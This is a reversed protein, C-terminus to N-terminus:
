RKQAKRTPPQGTERVVVEGVAYRALAPRPAIGQPTRVALGLATLKALAQEVLEPEAGPQRATKSWFGGHEAALERIRLQLDATAVPGGAAALHEALLLTIHGHTGQEPMRVDTLDDYPDVMAIGEARVEAVLGTLETVRATLFGRQRTLYALEADSLEDYYLVPDDLLMRTLRHRIARFRLEDSDLATEATLETIREEFDEALVLSPGIRTAPLGALVRREVDYLVDGAGSVYAEEDGAVRRLVGLRLLLRVVAALDLREDRKELTFAISAAALQPDAADLVVQEALRGLAIQSEGRELAALALCLLVYRRRTFPAASRTAERAPHTPDAPAGPIKRLRAAGADAQLTWGTNRDFWERLESAHRRVLRFEDAYPGRALLLPEKLLARAARQLDASHQGDLVTTLPTTM